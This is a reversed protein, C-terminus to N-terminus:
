PRTGSEIAPLETDEFRNEQDQSTGYTAKVQEDLMFVEVRANRIQRNEEPAGIGENMYLPETKGASSLRIRRSKIRGHEVLFDYVKRCRAFALAWNDEHDMTKHTAHKMSTHGRVEIKQPKGRM